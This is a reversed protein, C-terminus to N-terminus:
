NSHLLEMKTLAPSKSATFSIHQSVCTQAPRHLETRTQPFRTQASHVELIQEQPKPGQQLATFSQQSSFAQLPSTCPFANTNSIKMHIENWGCVNPPPM